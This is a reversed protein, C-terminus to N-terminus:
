LKGMKKRKSSLLIMLHYSFLKFVSEKLFFDEKYNFFFFLSPLVCGVGKLLSSSVINVRLM